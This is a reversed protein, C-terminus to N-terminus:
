NYGREINPEEGFLRANDCYGCAPAENTSPHHGLPCLDREKYTRAWYDRQRAVQDIDRHAWEIAGPLHEKVFEVIDM